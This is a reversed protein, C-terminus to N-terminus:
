NANKDSDDLLETEDLLNFLGSEVMELFTTHQQLQSLDDSGYDNDESEDHAAPQTVDGV